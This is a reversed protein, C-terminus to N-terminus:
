TGRREREQPEGSVYSREPDVVFSGRIAARGLLMPFGMGDRRTLTLEIPIRIGGLEIETEIVPRIESQGNSPRVQRSDVMRAEVTVRRGEDPEEPPFSFAVWREGDRTIEKIASAHLSATRAGTDVKARVAVGGLEPLCVWERWGITTREEGM